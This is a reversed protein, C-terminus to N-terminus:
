ARISGGVRVGVRIIDEEMGPSPCRKIFQDLDLDMHEFVLYFILEHDFRGEVHHVDLLRCRHTHTHTHKRTHTHMHVHIHTHTCAHMHTYTCM